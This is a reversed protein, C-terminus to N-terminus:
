EEKVVVDVCRCLVNEVSDYLCYVIIGGVAVGGKPPGPAVGVAELATEEEDDAFVTRTGAMTPDIPPATTRLASASSKRNTYRRRLVPGSESRAGPHSDCGMDSLPKKTTLPCRNPPIDRGVGTM